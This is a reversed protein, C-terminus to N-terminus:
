SISLVHRQKHCRACLPTVDLPKDYDGHHYHQAPESCDTCYLRDVKTMNGNKVENNLARQAMVKEPNALAYRRKKAKTTQLLEYDHRRAKIEIHRQHKRVRALVCPKCDARRGHIGKKQKHFESIPKLQKCKTCRKEVMYVTYVLKKVNDVM